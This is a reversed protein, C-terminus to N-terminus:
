GIRNFVFDRLVRWREGIRDVSVSAFLLLLAVMIIRFRPLIMVPVYVAAYGLLIILIVIDLKKERHAMILGPISFALLICYAGQYLINKTFPHTPDRWLYYWLRKLTLKLYEGPNAKIFKLAEDGYFDGREQEDQPINEQLYASYEPPLSSEIDGGEFNYGTGTAGEHNGRWLNFNFGSRLPIFREQVTWNRITWPLILLVIGFALPLLHSKLIPSVGRKRVILGMFVAGVVVIGASKTLLYMGAFLGILFATHTIRRSNPSKELLILYFYILWLSLVVYVFEPMPRSPLTAMEPYIAYAVAYLIGVRSSFMKRGLLYAPVVGTAAVIAQAIYMSLLNDGFLRIFVFSWYIYLPPFLSTPQPPTSWWQDFSYGCGDAMFKAITLYEYLYEHWNTICIVATLRFLFGTLFLGALILHIRSRKLPHGARKLFM